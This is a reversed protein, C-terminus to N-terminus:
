VDRLACDLGVERVREGFEVDGRPGLQCGREFRLRRRGRGSRCFRITLAQAVICLCVAPRSDGPRGEVRTCEGDKVLGGPRVSRM